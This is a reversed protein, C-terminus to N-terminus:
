LNQYEKLGLHNVTLSKKTQKNELYFNGVRERITLEKNSSM